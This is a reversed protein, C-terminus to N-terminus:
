KHVWKLIKLSLVSIKMFYIFMIGSSCEGTKLKRCNYCLLCSDLCVGACGCWMTFPHSVKLTTLMEDYACM